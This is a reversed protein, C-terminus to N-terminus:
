KTEGVSLSTEIQEIEDEIARIAIRLGKKFIITAFTDSGYWKYAEAGRERINYEINKLLKIIEKDTKM